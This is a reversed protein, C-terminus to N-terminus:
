DRRLVRGGNRRREERAKKNIEERRKRMRTAVAEQMADDPIDSAFIRPPLTVQPQPVVKCRERMERIARLTVFHKGAIMELKLRGKAHEQRLGSETMGGAPFAIKVADKLRLPADDSIDTM